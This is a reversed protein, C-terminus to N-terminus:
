LETKVRRRRPHPASSCSTGWRRCSAMQCRLSAGALLPPSARRTSQLRPQRRRSSHWCSIRARRAVAGDAFAGVLCLLQAAPRAEVAMLAGPAALQELGQSVLKTHATSVTLAHVAGALQPRSLLSRQVDGTVLRIRCRALTARALPGDAYEQEDGPPPPADAAAPAAAAPEAPAQQPLDEVQVEDPPPEADSPPMRYRQATRLEHLISTVNHAAVDVATFIHTLNRTRMLRARDPAEAATGFSHYPSNAIDGWFGRKLM